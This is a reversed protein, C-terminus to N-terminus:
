RDMPRNEVKEATLNFRFFVIKLLDATVTYVILILSLAILQRAHAVSFGLMQALPSVPLYVTMLLSLLGTVILWNGPRSQLFSKRTRIVFLIIIETIASELFWGTQFSSGSLHFYYYLMYFTIFDFLSSHLGFVIMFNRIMKLDWKRPSTLQEGDVQDSAITLFPLDTILNTLLIQKPLMPLFPLLLSAGAVSFMNGFTAGTTIFIYKMSNVFSKRGEEIGDALVSLEKELLVFDAAEQAVDVGNSTSIGVDAAHIAAVDNIGDGIYAVTANSKQLAKIIREKQHPEIEAFVNTQRVQVILAEPSLRDMEEGTLILPQDIDILRATHLAVYRNDGTIIKVQIHLHRLREISAQASEKLPDELVIFGLFIMQQEDDRTIQDATLPKYALGLVRYGTQCYAAFRNEIENRTTASLPEPHGPQSEVLSCVALINSLAGKTIFFRQNGKRVAISLRKRIFDYPIEDRKEYGEAPLNLAGIAQDIPNSFGQQFTANLYAYLGIREDALGQWNVIEKVTATGETITGTKDTCLVSVEGFNFISSLKKVIVKKQLMRRAGASMAFTMIAPLLEPAMGIALALSFLISDFVPKKFYLNAMLIVLSLLVTIRLLFYGFHKIGKEFATEPTQSLSHALQGFVTQSGTQVVLAHARGSIVNTGQWLCNTKQRLPATDPIDGVMKEVPYSEGTLSSENVHLENSELIRCDAPIIDGANLILVDGPVVEQTVVSIEKGDRLVTHKLAILSRLKEIARGANLEQWFGLLGTTLLIGLIILMDSTEGLMASLIVAVVLLLVLPSTFQRVLLKFERQFRSETRFLQRQEQIRKAAVASDLGTLTTQLQVVVQEPPLSSFPQSNM